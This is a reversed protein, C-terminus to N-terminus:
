LYLSQVETGVSRDSLVKSKNASIWSGGQIPPVYLLFYFNM